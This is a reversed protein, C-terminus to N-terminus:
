YQGTSLLVLTCAEQCLIGKEELQSQIENSETGPNFIVRRPNLQLIDEVYPKLNHESLYLTLTDIESLENLYSVCSVGEIEEYRPNIPFVEHGSEKLMLLAKFAYRDPKPSAGLIATKM